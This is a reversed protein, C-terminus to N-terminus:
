ATASGPAPLGILELQWQKPMQKFALAVLEFTEQFHSLYVYTYGHISLLRKMYDFSFGSKHAYWDQGSREIEPGYGYIVDLVKIDGAACSYLIDDVELNKEAITKFVFGLDPVRIEAFGDPKLVHRFGDLVKPVDHRYYHELNHSCYIADYQGAPLTKLERADCVVDPNGSPDIDLLHHEWDSYWYPIPISKSGGGVNLVKM